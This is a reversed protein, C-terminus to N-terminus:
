LNKTKRVGVFLAGLAFFILTTPEPVGAIAELESASLAEGGVFFVEDIIGTFFNSGVGLQIEGVTGTSVLPTGDSNQTETQVEVGDLYFRSTTGDFTQALHHFEGTSVPFNTNGQGQDVYTFVSGFHYTMGLSFGDGFVIGADAPGNLLSPDVFVWAGVSFSTFPGNLAPISSTNISLSSSGDFFAGNGVKGAVLSVSGDKTSLHHGNGSSDNFDSDFNWEALLAASCVSPVLMIVMFTIACIFNKM